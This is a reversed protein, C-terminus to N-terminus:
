VHICATTICPLMLLPMYIANYLLVMNTATPQQTLYRYYWASPPHHTCEGTGNVISPLTALKPEHCLVLIRPTPANDNMWGWAHSSTQTQNAPLSPQRRQLCDYRFPGNPFLLGEQSNWGSTKYYTANKSMHTSCVAHVPQVIIHPILPADSTCYVALSLSAAARSQLM